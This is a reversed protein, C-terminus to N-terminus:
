FYGEGFYRWEPHLTALAKVQDLAFFFQVPVPQECGRTGDNDFTANWDSPPVYDQGNEAAM